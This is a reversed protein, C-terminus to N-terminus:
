CKMCVSCSHSFYGNEEKSFKFFFHILIDIKKRCPGFCYVPYFNFPYMWMNQQLEVEGNDVLM